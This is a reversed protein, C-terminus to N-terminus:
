ATVTRQAPALIAGILLTHASRFVRKCFLPAFAQIASACDAPLTSM